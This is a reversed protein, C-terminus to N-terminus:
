MVNNNILCELIISRDIIDVVKDNNIDAQYNDGQTKRGSDAEYEEQWGNLGVELAQDCNILSPRSSPEPDVSPQPEETPEPDETPESEPPDLSPLNETIECVGQGYKNAVTVRLTCSEEAESSVRFDMDFAGCDYYTNPDCYEENFVENSVNVLSENVYSGCVSDVKVYLTQDPVSSYSIKYEILDIYEESVKPNYVLVRFPNDFIKNFDRQGIFDINCMPDDAETGQSPPPDINVFRATTECTNSGDDNVVRVVIRCTGTGGQSASVNMKFAACDSYDDSDCSLPAGSGFTADTVDTFNNYQGCTNDEIQFYLQGNPVDEYDQDSSKYIIEDITEGGEKPNYVLVKFDANRGPVLIDGKVQSISCVPDDSQVAARDRTDQNEEVLKTAVPIAVAMLLLGIILPIQALGLRNKHM